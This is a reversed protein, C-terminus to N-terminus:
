EEEVDTITATAKLLLLKLQDREAHDMSEIDIKHEEKVIHEISGSHEVRDSPLMRRLKALDMLAQRKDSLSGKLKVKRVGVPSGDLTSEEVEIGGLASLQRKTATSLDVIATGDDQIAILDGISSFALSALERAINDASIEYRDILAEIRREIEAKIRVDAFLRAGHVSASRESYGAAIAAKSQNKTKVYAAIFLQEKFNLQRELQQENTRAM